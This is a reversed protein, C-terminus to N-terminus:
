ISSQVDDPTPDVEEAVPIEKKGLSPLEEGQAPRELREAEDAEDSEPELQMVGEAILGEDRLRQITKDIIRAVDREELETRAQVLVGESRM